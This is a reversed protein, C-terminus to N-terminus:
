YVWLLLQGMIGDGVRYDSVLCASLFQTAIDKNKCSNKQTRVNVHMKPIYGVAVGFHALNLSANFDSFTLGVGTYWASNWTQEWYETVPSVQVKILKFINRM